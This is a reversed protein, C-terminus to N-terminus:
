LVRRLVSRPAQADRDLRTGAVFGEGELTVELGFRAAREGRLPESRPKGVELWTELIAILDPAVVEDM